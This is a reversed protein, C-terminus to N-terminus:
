HEFHNKLQMVKVIAHQGVYDSRDLGNKLKLGQLIIPSQLVVSIFATNSFTGRDSTPCKVGFMRLMADDISYPVPSWDLATNWDAFAV